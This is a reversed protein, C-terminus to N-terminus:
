YLVNKWKSHIGFLWLECSVLLKNNQCILLCEEWNLQYTYFNAKIFSLMEHPRYVSLLKLYTMFDNHSLQSLLYSKLKVKDIDYISISTSNPSNKDHNNNRIDEVEEEVDDKLNILYDFVKFLDEPYSELCIIIDSLNSSLFQIILYICNQIDLKALSPIINIIMEAYPQVSEEYVSMGGFQFRHNKVISRM